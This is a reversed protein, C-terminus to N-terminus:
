LFESFHGFLIDESDEDECKAYDSGLRSMPQGTPQKQHFTQIRGSAWTIKGPSAAKCIDDNTEARNKTGFGM